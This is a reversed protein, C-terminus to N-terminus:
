HGLAFTVNVVATVDKTVTATDYAGYDSVTTSNPSTIQFVGVDVGRVDGLKAGSAEVIVHARRQADKIAVSLLQPRLSPLKTYVYQPPDAALPVGEALLKASREAVQAVADVRSSRVEFRRTLRYDKIRNGNNDSGGPTLTSVPQLSLEDPKIGESQFFARVRGTWDTLRGVAAVASPAQSSVEATWVVYDSRIRQKASGTVTIV